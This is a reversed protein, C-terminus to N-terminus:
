IILTHPTVGESAHRSNARSSRETLLPSFVMEVTPKQVCHAFAFLRTHACHAKNIYISIYTYTYTYIHTYIHTHIYTYIYISTYTHKCTYM